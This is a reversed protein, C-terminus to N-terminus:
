PAFVVALIAGVCAAIAIWALPLANSREHEIDNLLSKCFAELEADNMDRVIRSVGELSM